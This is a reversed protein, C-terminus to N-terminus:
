VEGLGPNSRNEHPFAGNAISDAGDPLDEPAVYDYPSLDTIDRDRKELPASASRKTREKREKPPETELMDVRVEWFGGAEYTPAFRKGLRVFFVGLFAAAPHVIPITRAVRGGEPQDLSNLTVMLSELQEREWCRVVLTLQAVDLGNDVPVQKDRGKVQKKDWRRARQGVITAMGPLSHGDLIVTDWSRFPVTV